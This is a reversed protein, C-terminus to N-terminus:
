SLKLRFYLFHQSVGLVPAVDGSNMPNIVLGSLDLVNRPELVVM